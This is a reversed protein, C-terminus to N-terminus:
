FGNVDCGCIDFLYNLTLVSCISLEEKYLHLIGKTIEVFPNGSFFGIEGGEDAIVETQERETHPTTERSHAPLLGWDDRASELRSAYTEVKIDRRNRKDKANAGKSDM